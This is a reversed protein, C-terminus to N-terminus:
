IVDTSSGCDFTIYTNQDQLLDTINGTKAIRALQLKNNIINVDETSSGNPVSAGALLNLGLNTANLTITLNKNNTNPFYTLGNITLSEIKNVQANEEINALKTREQDTMNNITLNIAKTLGNVIAPTQEINNVFIHEIKNVNAGYEIGDLKQARTEDFSNIVLNISKQKGDIISTSQETGNVFLHEILNKQAGEEIDDLKNKNETTYDNTSLGKGDIKDVKSILDNRLNAIKSQQINAEADIDADKISGKVAYSGEDGLLAWTGGNWVFEKKDWLIVDGPQANSFDYGDIRPNVAGTIAVTAEGIFHMAGTLGSTANDIYAKVLYNPVLDNNNEIQTAIQRTTFSSNGTGILVGNPNTLGTGGKSVPVIGNIVDFTVKAKQTTVIGNQETVATVFYGETAGETHNLQSIFFQIQEATRYILSNYNQLNNRGIWDVIKVLDSLDIYTSTDIIWDGEENNEKYQLYYKNLNDGTGQILQYIRPAITVEVDGGVLSKVYNELGNIEQASYSPKVSSKAWAYVDAAIAQVWPLQYFYSHGDGIKIGIAPPTNEPQSNSSSEIVRDQPFVVIAAEGAKLIVRSSKWQNYTGYRLLIRTELVHEAM